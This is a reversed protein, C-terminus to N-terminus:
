GSEQRKGVPWLGFEHLPEPLLVEEMFGEKVVDPKPKEEEKLKREEGRMKREKEEKWKRSELM